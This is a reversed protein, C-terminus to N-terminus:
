PIAFCSSDDLVADSGDGELCCFIDGSGPGDADGAGGDTFNLWAAATTASASILAIPDGSVPDLWDGSNQADCEGGACTAVQENEASLTEGDFEACTQTSWVLYVPLGDSVADCSADTATTCNVSINAPAVGTESPADSNGDDEGLCGVLALTPIIVLFSFLRKFM